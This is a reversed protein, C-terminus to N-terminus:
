GVVRAQRLEAIAAADYGAERLIADSHAGLEPPRRPRTKESGAVNFPSHITLAQEGDFPVLVGADRMQRDRPIDEMETVGEFVLGAEDFIRRWDDRDRTAFVRDFLAILEVSRRCREARTAYRPDDIMEPHGMCAAFAPWHRVENVLALVLWRGDRCRYYCSLPNPLEERPPRPVFKADCLAAQAMTGIAWLGNALLSSDVQTGQGTHERQYLALVIAAFLSVASPHDGLGPIARAPTTQADARVMHMLGSRAWYATLDFGPKDAEAGTEGYGTFSAYILRPNLARLRTADLALKRRVAFPYNTVFVDAQAVLRHLAEQGRPQALDLALSRKGRDDLMWGYAQPSEPMGPNHHVTRWPDPSTPSEVKIVDAGFDGLLTAAMPAAIFSGCDIVKLGDLIGSM